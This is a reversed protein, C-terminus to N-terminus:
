PQQLINQSHKWNKTKAKEQEQKNQTKETM